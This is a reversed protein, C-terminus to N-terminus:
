VHARGIEDDHLYRISGKADIELRVPFSGGELLLAELAAAPSTRGTDSCGTPQQPGNHKQRYALGTGPIGAHTYVGSPGMSLSAGRPGVSLGLGRKSLNLRVGPALTIRRQFRFAM